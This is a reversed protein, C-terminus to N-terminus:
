TGSVVSNIRLFAIRVLSCRIRLATYLNSNNELRMAIQLNFGNAAAGSGSPSWPIMMATNEKAAAAKCLVDNEASSPTLFTHLLSVTVAGKLKKLQAEFAKAPM